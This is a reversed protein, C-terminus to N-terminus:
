TGNERIEEVVDRIRDLQMQLTDLQMQLTDRLVVQSRLEQLDGHFDARLGAVEKRFREFVPSVHDDLARRIQRDTYLGMWAMLGGALLGIVGVAVAIVNLSGPDASQALTVLMM